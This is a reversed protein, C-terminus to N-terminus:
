TDSVYRRTDTQCGFNRAPEKNELVPIIGPGEQTCIQQKNWCAGMDYPPIGKDGKLCLGCRIATVLGTCVANKSTCYWANHRLSHMASSELLVRM